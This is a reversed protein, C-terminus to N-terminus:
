GGSMMNDGDSMTEGMTEGMTDTMAGSTDSMADHTTPECAMLALLGTLGALLKISTM